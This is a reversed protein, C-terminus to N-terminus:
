EEKGFINAWEEPTIGTMLFERDDASLTPFANQIMAGRHWAALAEVFANASMSIRRSMKAGDMFRTLAVSCEDGYLPLISTIKTAQM